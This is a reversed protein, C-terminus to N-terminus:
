NMAYFIHNDIQAIRELDHRWVPRVRETHYHTADGVPSEKGNVYDILVQEVIRGAREWARQELVNNSPRDSKGDHTWSFQKRQWVVDCITDPYHKSDVRNMTVWGVAQMSLDSINRAEFYLNQQLCYRQEEDFQNLREAAVADNWHFAGIGVMATLVAGNFIAATKQLFNMKQRM